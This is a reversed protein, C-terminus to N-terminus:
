YTPVYRNKAHQEDQWTDLKCFKRMAHRVRSNLFNSLDFCDVKKKYMSGKINETKLFSNGIQYHKLKVEEFM